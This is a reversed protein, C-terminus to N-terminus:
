SEQIAQESMVASVGNGGMTRSAASGGAADFGGARLAAGRFPPWRRAVSEAAGRDAERFDIPTSSPLPCSTTIQTKESVTGLWHGGPYVSEGAPGHTTPGPLLGECHDAIEDRRM